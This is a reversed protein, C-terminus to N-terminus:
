NQTYFYCRSDLYTSYWDMNKKEEYTLPKFSTSLLHNHTFVVSNEKYGELVSIDIDGGFKGVSSTIIINRKNDIISYNENANRM